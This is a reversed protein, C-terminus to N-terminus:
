DIVILYKFAARAGWVAFNIGGGNHADSQVEAYARDDVKCDIANSAAGGHSTYTATHGAAVTATFGNAGHVFRGQAVNVASYFPTGTMVATDIIEGCGGGNGFDATRTWRTMVAAGRWEYSLIQKYEVATTIWANKANVKLDNNWFFGLDSNGTQALEGGAVTFTANSGAAQWGTVESASNFGLFLVIHDVANPRPDCVDGVHDGDADAQDPNDLHPCNDCADGVGDGDEDYQAPNPTDPCNDDADPVGDHDRDMVAVAAGDGPASAGGADTTLEDGGAPAAARFGCGALWTVLALRRVM